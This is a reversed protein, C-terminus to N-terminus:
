AFASAAILLSTRLASDRRTASVKRDLPEAVSPSGAPMPSVAALTGDVPVVAAAIELSRLATTSSSSAAPTSKLAAFHIRDGDRTANIAEASPRLTHTTSTQLDSLGGARVIGAAPSVTNRM